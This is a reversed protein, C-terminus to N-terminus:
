TKRTNGMGGAEPLRPRPCGQYLPAPGPNCPAAVFDRLRSGTSIVRPRARPGPWCAFRSQVRWEPTARDGRWWPRPAVPRYRERASAARLIRRRRPPVCRAGRGARKRRWRYVDEGPELNGVGAWGSDATDRLERPSNIDSASEFGLIPGLAPETDARWYSVHLRGGAAVWDELADVTETQIVNLPNNIVVVEWGGSALQTRFSARDNGAILVIDLNLAQAALFAIDTEQGVSENEWVLADQAYANGALMIIAAATSIIRTQALITQAFM